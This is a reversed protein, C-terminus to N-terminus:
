DFANIADILQRLRGFSKRNFGLQIRFLSQLEADEDDEPPVTAEEIGGSGLIDAFSYTLHELEQRNLARRLRLILNQGVYRSSHYIRYFQLTEECAAKPSDVVRFLSLDEQSLLREAVMRKEMFAVLDRFYTSEPNEVMVVPIPTQKGTQLLTLAEFLEDLTGFGGPFLVVGSSEKLLFLKRTFFYRFTVLKRDGRITRNAQQEFPLLINVGFSMDRGAGRHAAGMIGSGAGTVVMWGAEAMRRGLEEARDYDGHGSETRASGFVTVKPTRRYPTFMRFAIRMEKLATNAIKLDGRKAKQLGLKLASTALQLVYEKEPGPCVSDVIAELESDLATRGTSYHPARPNNKNRAPKKAKMDAPVEAFLM